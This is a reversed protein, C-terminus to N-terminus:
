EWAEDKEMEGDSSRRWSPSSTNSSGTWWIAASYQQMNISHSCLTLVPLCMCMCWIERERGVLGNTGKWVRVQACEEVWSRDVVVKESAEWPARRLEDLRAKLMAFRQPCRKDVVVHTVEAHLLSSVM